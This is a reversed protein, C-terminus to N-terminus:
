LFLFFVERLANGSRIDLSNRRHTKKFFRICFFFLDFFPSFVKKFINIKEKGLGNYHM